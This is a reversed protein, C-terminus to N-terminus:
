LKEREKVCAYAWFKNVIFNIPTTIFVNFVPALLQSLKEDAVRISFFDVVSTVIKFSGINLVDIWLVLFLSNLVFGLFYSIYTKFLVKYWIRYEKNEQFVFCNGWIFANFTSVLFGMLNALMYHTGIKVFFMYVFYNIVTNLIGVIGFKLFQIFSKRM